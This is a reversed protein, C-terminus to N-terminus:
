YLNTKIYSGVHVLCANFINKDAKAYNNSLYHTVFNFTIKLVLVKM